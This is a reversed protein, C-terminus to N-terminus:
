QKRNSLERNIQRLKKELEAKKAILDLGEELEALRAIHKPLSISLQHYSTKAEELRKKDAALLLETKPIADELYRILEQQEKQRRLWKRITSQEQEILSRKM